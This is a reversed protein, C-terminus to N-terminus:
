REIIWRLLLPLKPSRESLPPPDDEIIASLTQVATERSFARSGTAMEYLLLGFSFQDSRFDVERGRAQEPSMHPATGSLLNHATDTPLLAGDASGPAPQEVKAVGFDLIKARGDRTLMVNEPKLDRHVIGAEHAAALGDAVQVAIDLLRKVPLPGAA